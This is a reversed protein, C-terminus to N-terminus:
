RQAYPMWPRLMRAKRKRRQKSDLAACAEKFRRWANDALMVAWNRDAMAAHALRAGRALKAPDIHRVAELPQNVRRGWKGRSAQGM